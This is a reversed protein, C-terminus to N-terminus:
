DRASVAAVPSRALAAHPWGLPPQFAYSPQLKLERKFAAIDQGDVKLSVKAAPKGMKLATLAGGTFELQASEVSLTLTLDLAVTRCEIGNFSLVLRPELKVEVEHQLLTATQTSAPPGISKRVADAPKRLQSWAKLLLSFPDAAFAERLADGLHTNAWADISKGLLKVGPMQMSAGIALQQRVQDMGPQTWQLALLQYLPQGAALEPAKDVGATENM